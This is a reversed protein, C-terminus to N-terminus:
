PLLVLSQLEGSFFACFLSEFCPSYDPSLLLFFYFSDASIRVLFRDGYRLLLLTLMRSNKSRILIAESPLWRCFDFKIYSVLLSSVCSPLLKM